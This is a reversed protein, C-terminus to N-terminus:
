PFIFGFIIYTSPLPFKKRTETTHFFITKYMFHLPLCKWRSLVKFMLSDIDCILLKIFYLFLLLIQMLVIDSVFGLLILLYQILKLSVWTIVTCFPYMNWEHACHPFFLFTFFPFIFLDSFYPSFMVDCLEPIVHSRCLHKVTRKKKKKKSPLFLSCCLVQFKLSFFLVHFHLYITIHNM